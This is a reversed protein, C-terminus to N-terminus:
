SNEQAWFVYAFAVPGANGMLLGACVAMQALVGTFHLSALTLLLGDFYVFFCDLGLLRARRRWIVDDAARERARRVETAIREKSLVLLPPM